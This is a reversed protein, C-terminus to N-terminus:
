NAPSFYSKSVIRIAAADRAPKLFIAYAHEGSFEGVDRFEGDIWGGPPMEIWAIGQDVFEQVAQVQQKSGSPLSMWESSPTTRAVIQGVPADTEAGVPYFVSHNGRNSLRFRVSFGEAIRKPPSVTLSVPAASGAASDGESADKVRGVHNVLVFLVAVTV